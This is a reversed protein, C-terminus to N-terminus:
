TASDDARDADALDYEALKKRVTTRNLGLLRAAQWRNGRVREMVGSFLVAEVRRLLEQYLGAPAEAGPRALRDALDQGPQALLRCLDAQGDHQFVDRM